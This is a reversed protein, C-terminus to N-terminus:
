RLWSPALAAPALLRPAGSGDAPVTYLDSGYDGPLAYAVTADDTWVAQDDVSRTEALPWARLTSLDLVYLRWPAESPLGPVRKKFALRTGDPSLSPCEVNGLVTTVTRDAVDGRVLYTHGGTGLTAYFHRDDAFTVGWFNADVPRLRHGDRTITFDELTAQLKGTRTDLISTRTSFSGGAYSDGGVFVTWAAMRGSPSVRARTPIGALAVRRTAHLRADLVVASYTDTVAGRTAQLCIGTGGAAYFRLCKVGSAVRPGGPASAPVSALEDRHPGWAMSRFVVRPGGGAALSVAGARVAPGGTQVQNKRDARDSARWVAAGAVCALVTVCAALVLLRGRTSMPAAGGGEDTVDGGSGGTESDSGIEGTGGTEGDGSM